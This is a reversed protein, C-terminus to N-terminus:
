YIHFNPSILSLFTGRDVAQNEASPNWYPELIYIRNARTLNLGVGGAKLSVLMLTVSDDNQLADLAATRADRSMKGDLRCFKITGKRLHSQLIDLMTTWQSFVVCKDVEPMRAEAIAAKQEMENRAHIELLDSTIAKIKTSSMSYMAPENLLASNMQLSSSDAEPAEYDSGDELIVKNVLTVFDKEISRLRFRCIPCSFPLHPVVCDKCFLHECKSVLPVKTDNTEFDVLSCYSCFAERADILLDFVEDAKSASIPPLERPPCSSACGTLAVKVLVPPAFTSLTTSSSSSITVAPTCASMPAALTAMAKSIVSTATRLQTTSLEIIPAISLTVISPPEIKPEIELLEVEPEVKLLEIIPHSIHSLGIEIPSSERSEDSDMTLDIVEGSSERKELTGLDSKIEIPDENDVDMSDVDIVELEMVRRMDADMTADGSSGNAM